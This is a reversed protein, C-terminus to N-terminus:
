KEANPDITSLVCDRVAYDFDQALRRMGYNIDSDSKRRLYLKAADLITIKNEGEGYCLGVGRKYRLNSLEKNIPFEPSCDGSLKGEILALLVTYEDLILEENKKKIESEMEDMVGELDKKGLLRFIRDEIKKMERKNAMVSRSKFKNIFM